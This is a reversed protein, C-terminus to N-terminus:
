ELLEGILEKATKARKKTEAEDFELNLVDGEKCCVLLAKPINFLTGDDTEVVAFDDEFRDITLKM